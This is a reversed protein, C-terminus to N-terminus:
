AVFAVSRPVVPADVVSSLGRVLAAWGQDAGYTTTDLARQTLAGAIVLKGGSKADVNTWQAATTATYIQPLVQVRGLNTTLAVFQALTWGENCSSTTDGFYAPCDIAAGNFVLTDDTSGKAAALYSDEWDKANQYKGDFETADNEIDNAAAVTITAGLGAAYQQLPKVVGTFWDKGRTTGPYRPNTKDSTDSFNGSNNTGVAVRVAAGAANCTGDAVGDLYGEVADVLEAYTLRQTPSSNALAVGPEATSLRSRYSQTGVDLLAFTAGAKADVCGETRLTSRNESPDAATSPAGAAGTETLNSLYRAPNSAPPALDNSPLYGLVDVYAKLSGKSVNRVEIRGSSVPVIVAVGLSQGAEFSLTRTGSGTRGPAGVVVAGTKATAAVTVAVVAATVKTRAIGAHGALTVASVKGAGVSRASVVRQPALAQLGGAVTTSDGTFAAEVDLALHVTSKGRNAVTVRGTADTRAFALESWGNGVGHYISGQAPVSGGTRYVSLSGARTTSLAHVQIAVTGVHGTQVVRTSGAALATSAAVIRKAALSTLLGSGSSSSLSGYYGVVDVVFGASGSSAANYVTFRAKSLPVIATTTSTVKPRYRLTWTSPTKAGYAYTTLAGNTTPVTASLSVVAAAAGSPVRGALSVTSAAKARLAGKRNGNMGNATNAARYPAIATYTGAAPTAAAAVAAPAVTAVGVGLVAALLALVIRRM